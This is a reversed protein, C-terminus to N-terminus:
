RNVGIKQNNYKLRTKNSLKVNFFTTEDHDWRSFIGGILLPCVRTARCRLLVVFERWQSGGNLLASNSFIWRLEM